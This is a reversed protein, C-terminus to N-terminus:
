QGTNIFTRSNTLLRSQYWNYFSRHALVLRCKEFYWTIKAFNLIVCTDLSSQDFHVTWKLYARGANLSWVMWKQFFTWKRHVPSTQVALKSLQLAVKNSPWKPDLTMEPWFANQSSIRIEHLYKELIRSFFVHM